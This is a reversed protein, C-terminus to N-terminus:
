SLMLKKTSAFFCFLSSLFVYTPKKSIRVNELLGELLAHLQKEVDGAFIILGCFATSKTESRFRFKM